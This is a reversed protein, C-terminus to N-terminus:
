DFDSTSHPRWMRDWLRGVHGLNGLLGRLFYFSSFNAISFIPVGHSDGFRLSDKGTTISKNNHMESKQFQITQLLREFRNAITVIISNKM